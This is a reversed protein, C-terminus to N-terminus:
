PSALAPDLSVPLSVIGHFTNHDWVVDSGTTPSRSTPAADHSRSSRRRSSSRPSTPASATTRDQVSPSSGGPSEPSTSSTPTRTTSLSRPLRRRHRAHRAARRVAARGAGHRRRHHRPRTRDATLLAPARPGRTPGHRAPRGPGEMPGRRPAPLRRHHDGQRDGRAWRLRPQRGACPARRAVPRPRCRRLRPAALRRRRGSEFPTGRPTLRPLRLVRPGCGRGPGAHRRGDPLLRRRPRGGVPRGHGRRQRPHRRHPVGRAVVPAARVRVLSRRHRRAERWPTPM